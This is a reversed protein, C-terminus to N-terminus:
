WFKYKKVIDKYIQGRYMKAIIPCWKKKSLGLVTCIDEPDYDKELLKCIYEAYDKTNKPNDYYMDTLVRLETRSVWVLNDVTTNNRNFDKLHAYWRDHKIDDETREIFNM